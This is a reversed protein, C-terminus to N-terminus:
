PHLSIIGLVGLVRNQGLGGVVGGYRGPACIPFQTEPGAVGTFDIRWRVVVFPVRDIQKLLCGYPYKALSLRLRLHSCEKCRRKPCQSKRMSVWYWGDFRAHQPMSRSSHLRGCSDCFSNKITHRQSDWLSWLHLTKGAMNTPTLCSFGLTSSSSCGNISLLHLLDGNDAPELVM